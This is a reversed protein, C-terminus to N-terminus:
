QNLLLTIAHYILVVGVVGVVTPALITAWKAIQTKILLYLRDFKDQAKVYVFYLVILPMTYITNYVILIFAVQLFTLQHNLLIALFAFYPVATTLESITAGVGLTILARPSVSKIKRVAEEEERLEEDEEGYTMSRVQKKLSNIKNNQILFSVGICFAIGLILEATFLFRGYTNVLRQFFSGVFAVFGYYALFGGILNTVGTPIIFYWIHKPKKVMGQLVFQQTIALPNLSDAASTLITSFLLAWM